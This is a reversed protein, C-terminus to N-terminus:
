GDGRQLSFETSPPSVLVATMPRRGLWVARLANAQLEAINQGGMVLGSDAM